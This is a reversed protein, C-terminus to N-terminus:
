VAVLILHDLLPRVGLPALAVFLYIYLLLVLLGSHGLSVILNHTHNIALGYCTIVKVYIFM